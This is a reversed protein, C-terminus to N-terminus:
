GCEEACRRHVRERARESCMLADKLHLGAHIIQLLRPSMRSCLAEVGATESKEYPQEHRADPIQASPM